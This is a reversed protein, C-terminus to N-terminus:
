PTQVDGLPAAEGGGHPLDRYYIGWQAMLEQVTPLQMAGLERFFGALAHSPLHESTCVWSRDAPVVYIMGNQHECSVQIRTMDSGTTITLGTDGM